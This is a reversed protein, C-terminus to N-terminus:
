LEGLVALLVVENLSPVWTSILHASQMALMQAFFIDADWWRQVPKESRKKKRRWSYGHLGPSCDICNTPCTAAKPRAVVEGSPAGM